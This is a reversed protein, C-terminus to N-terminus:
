KNHFNCVLGFGSKLLDRFGTSKYEIDPIESKGPQFITETIQKLLPKLSGPSMMDGAEYVDSFFLLNVYKFM